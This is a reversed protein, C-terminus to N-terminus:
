KLDCFWYESLNEYGRLISECKEHIFGEIKSINIFVLYCIRAECLIGVFYQYFYFCLIYCFKFPRILGLIYMRYMFQPACQKTLFLDKQESISM